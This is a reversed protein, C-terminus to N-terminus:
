PGEAVTYVTQQPGADLACAFNKMSCHLPDQLCTQAHLWDDMLDSTGLTGHMVAQMGLVVQAGLRYQFTNGDNYYM